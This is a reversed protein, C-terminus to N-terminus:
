DQNLWGRMLNQQRLLPTPNTFAALRAAKVNALWERRYESQRALTQELTTGRFHFRDGENLTDPGEEWEERILEDVLEMDVVFDNGEPSHRILNRHDWMARGTEWLLLVLGNLWKDGTRRKGKEEYTQQQFDAFAVQLKGELAHHWGIEDQRAFAGLLSAPLVLQRLPRNRVWGDLRSILARHLRRETGLRELYCTIKTLGTEWTELNGLHQCRFVHKTDEAETRCRPCLEKTWEGRRKMQKAVPAHGSAHKAIWRRRAPRIDSMAAGIADWHLARSQALSLKDHKDWWMRLRRTQVFEKIMSKFSKCVKRPGLSVSWENRCISYFPQHSDVTELWYSGALEDAVDNALAWEDLEREPYKERQHGEVHQFFFKIPCRARLVQIARLLDFHDDSPVVPRNFQLKDIASLNDSALDVSGALLSSHFCLVEVIRLMAYLGALESRYASQDTPHGPVRTAATLKEGTVSNTLVIGTTGHQDKFSGDSVGWVLRTAIGQIFTAPHTPPTVREFVWSDEPSLKRITDDLSLAPYLNGARRTWAAGTFIWQNCSEEVTALLVDSPFATTPGVLKFVPYGNRHIGTPALLKTHTATTWFIRNVAPSWYM